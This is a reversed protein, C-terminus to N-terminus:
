SSLGHGCRVGLSYRGGALDCGLQQFIVSDCRIFVLLDQLEKATLQREGFQSDEAYHPALVARVFGRADVQFTQWRPAAPNDLSRSLVGADDVDAIAPRTGEFNLRVIMRGVNLWKLSSGRANAANQAVDEGHASSRQCYHIREAEARDELAFARLRQSHM